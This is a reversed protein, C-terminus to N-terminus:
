RTIKNNVYEKINPLYYENIFEELNERTPRLVDIGYKEIVDPTIGINSSVVLEDDTGVVNISDYFSGTDKLTIRDIPQNKSIKVQITFRRYGLEGTIQNKIKNGTGDIGQEFLQDQTIMDIIIYDNENITEKLVRYVSSEIDDVFSRIKNFM